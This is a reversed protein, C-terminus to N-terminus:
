SVLPAEQIKLEIRDLDSINESSFKTRKMGSGRWKM